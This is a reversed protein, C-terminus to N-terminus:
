AGALTKLIIAAADQPSRATVDVVLDAEATMWSRASRYKEIHRSRWDSASPDADDSIIRHRLADEHCDLVVHIVAIGLQQFGSRLESWYSEVLVTQVAVLDDGTLTTIESAVRPVLSRWPALDQFDGVTVDALNARLMYGVWEPDFLRLEPSQEAIAAATTTKGVGFAGNLWVLM